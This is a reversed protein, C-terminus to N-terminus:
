EYAVVMDIVDRTLAPLHGEAIEAIDRRADGRTREVVVDLGSARRVGEVSLIVEYLDGYYIHEGVRWGTGDEGGEIPHLFRVLAEYVGNAVVGLDHDPRVAIRGVLKTIQAYRPGIVHLETTILRRPELFRCIARLQAESPQPTAADNKPLVLLTVSGDKDILTGTGDVAKRALAFAKHLSVGDARMALDAFDQASVARDRIRLDNPARLKVNALPEADRGDHAPRLNTVSKVGRIRGKIKTIVNAAVNGIEGGGVRYRVATVQASAVPIRGRRGDGLHISGSEPDLVYHQSEPGSKFFDDVRTWAPPHGEEPIELDLDPQGTEPDILVPTKPLTFTQAPRGNSRGLRDELRTAAQTASATNLHLSRITWPEAAGDPLLRTIRARIWYLARFENRAMPLEIEYAPDVTAWDASTLLEPHVEIDETGDENAIGDIKRATEVPDNGCAALQDRIVDEPVGMAGWKSALNELIDLDPDTLAAALEAPSQPPKKRGFDAWFDPSLRVPDLPTAGKPIEFVLHGSRSLGASDDESLVLRTWGNDDDDHAFLNEQTPSGTFIQWEIHGPPDGSAGPALCHAALPGEVQKGDPGTDFTQVADVYLDLPGAPLKDETYADLPPKANPRLLLGIYLLSGSESPAFPAFAHPWETEKDYRTVLQRPHAADSHALVAGIHANVALLTQDTEFVVERPLDPDDVATKANRPATVVLPDTPKDLPNLTFSLEARAPKAPIPTIGLLDLFKIYNLEPVQNLEFLITETLWAHLKVLTMGPDSPNFNTWEPTYRPIRAQAERVLDDFRRKDLDPPKLPM